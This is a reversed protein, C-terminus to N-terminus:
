LPACQGSKAAATNVHGANTPAPNNGACGLTGFVNNAKVVIAGPGNNDIAVNHSVTNAGFTVALNGSVNVQGAFRNGACGAAPDGIRVPVLAGTVRVATAPPPGSVSTGCLSFFSPATATIGRSVQSNVMSLAGGPNVTVPGAVRANSILLSQGANVTVSGPFDGTITQTPPPAQFAGITVSENAAKCPSTAPNNNADGSYVATWFYTGAAGPTFWDSTAAVGSLANTSTFVQNTCTDERFLRFMVTGTPSAGGALTATDRVPTGVPGGASAQTSITPSARTVVFSVTAAPDCGAWSPNYNRDGSYAAVWSYAGSAAIDVPTSPYAGFGSVTTSRTAYPTGSCLPTSGPAFPGFLNFTVTGTPAAGSTSSPPPPAGITATSTTTAPVSASPQPPTSSGITTVAPTSPRVTSEDTRWQRSGSFTASGVHKTQVGSSSGNVDTTPVRRTTTEFTVVCLDDIGLVLTGEGAPPVFRYRTATAHDGTDPTITWTGECTFNSDEFVQSSGYGTSGLAYVGAEAAGGCDIGVNSCAPYVDINTVALPTFLDPYSSMNRLVLTGSTMEGVVTDALKPVEEGSIAAGAGPALYVSTALLLAVLV